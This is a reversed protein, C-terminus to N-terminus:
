NKAISSVSLEQYELVDAAERNLFDADQELIAADNADGRSREKRAFYDLAAQELFSSRNLDERDIRELLSSSLTVSTKVKM